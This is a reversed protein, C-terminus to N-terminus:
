RRGRDDQEIDNIHEHSLNNHQQGPRYIRFAYGDYRNMGNETGVWMFGSRDKM